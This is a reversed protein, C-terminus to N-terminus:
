FELLCLLILSRHLVRQLFFYLEELLLHCTKCFNFLHLLLLFVFKCLRAPVKVKVLDSFCGRLLFHAEVLNHALEHSGVGLSLRGLSLVCGVGKAKIAAFFVVLLAFKVLDNSLGLCAVM